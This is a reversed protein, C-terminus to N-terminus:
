DCTFCKGVALEGPEPGPALISPLGAPVTEPTVATMRVVEKFPEVPPAINQAQISLNSVRQQWVTNYAATQEEAPPGEAMAGPILAGATIRAQAVLSEETTELFYRELLSLLLFGSLIMAIVIVVLHSLTLRIRISRRLPVPARPSM